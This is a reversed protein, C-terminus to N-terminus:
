VGGGVGKPGGHLVHTRLFEAWQSEEGPFSGRHEPSSPPWESHSCSLTTCCRRDASWWWAESVLTVVSCRGPCPLWGTPRHCQGWVSWGKGATQPWDCVDRQVVCCSQTISYRSSSPQGRWVLKPYKTKNKFFILLVSTLVHPPFFGDESWM